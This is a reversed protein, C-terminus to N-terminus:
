AFEFLLFADRLPSYKTESIYPDATFNTDDDCVSDIKGMYISTFTDQKAVFSTYVM